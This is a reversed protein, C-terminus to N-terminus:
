HSHILPYFFNKLFPAQFDIHFCLGVPYTHLNKYSDKAYLSM